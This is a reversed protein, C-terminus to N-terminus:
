EYWRQVAEFAETIEPDGILELLLMDAEPHDRSGDRHQGEPPSGLERLRALVMDRAQGRVTDGAM